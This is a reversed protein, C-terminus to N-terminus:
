RDLLHNPQDDADESESAKSWHFWTQARSFQAFYVNLLRKAHARVFIVSANRACFKLHENEYARNVDM